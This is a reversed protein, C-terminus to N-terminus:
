WVPVSAEEVLDEGVRIRPFFVVLHEHQRVGDARHLM